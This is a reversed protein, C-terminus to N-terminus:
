VRKSTGGMHSSVLRAVVVVLYIQGILAELVALMRVPALRPAIDGYGLTTLTTFSFYVLSQFDAEGGEPFHIAGPWLGVVVAYLVAWSMGMFLYACLAGFITERDVVEQELM